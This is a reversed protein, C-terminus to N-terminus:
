ALLPGAPIMKRICRVRNGLTDFQEACWDLNDKNDVLNRYTNVSAYDATNQKNLNGFHPGPSRLAPRYDPDMMADHITVRELPNGDDIVPQSDSLMMGHQQRQEHGLARLIQLQRQLQTHEAKLEQMSPHAVPVRLGASRASARSNSPPPLPVRGLLVAPSSTHTLTGVLGLVVITALALVLGAFKAVRGSQEPM